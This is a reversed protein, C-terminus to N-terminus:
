NPFIAMKGDKARKKLKDEHLQSILIPAFKFVGVKGCFVAPGRGSGGLIPTM